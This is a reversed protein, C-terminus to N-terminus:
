FPCITAQVGYFEINSRHGCKAIVKLTVSSEGIRSNVISVDIPEGIESIYKVGQIVM